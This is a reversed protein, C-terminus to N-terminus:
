AKAESATGRRDWMVYFIFEQYRKQFSDDDVFKKFIETHTFMMNQMVEQLKKDLAIKANQRDSNKMTNLMGSDAQLSEPISKTLIENVKDPDAWDIDGFRDNFAKLISELTDKEDEGKGGSADVSIPDVEGDESSLGIDTKKDHSLRYSDMNVAEIINDEDTDSEIQLKPILLKLYLWMKEWIPMKFDLLKSLYSYTRVFAKAKVKFDIKNDESLENDFIAVSRDIIADVEARNTQEDYYKEFLTDLEEESYVQHHELEDQLDNLKNPDTAESLITTTFYLDFAKKIEEVTNYFDLVFTDTKAPKYARNLRSLTQVAQVDALKKDVYMTHLLPEDFGTQYKNAVILFRYESKKLQKPIDNIGDEFSNMSAETYDIGKYNKTGSFTVIAKYPSNIEKLYTDFAQKYKIASEISKTVVMAKAKSDILHKVDKHFHDIMVHSKQAISFEHGEIYARLKKQAQKTEFDPNSEVAKVLKYYSNCTTYNKLVDLIFEEQRRHIAAKKYHEINSLGSVLKNVLKRSNLIGDDCLKRLYTSDEPVNITYEKGYVYETYTAGSAKFALILDIDDLPRIKTNRAFSGFKCDKETYLSPFDYIKSPLNNLQGILWDRSNRAKKTRDADLNVYDRNFEKFASDVTTAM